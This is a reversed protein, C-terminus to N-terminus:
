FCGTGANETAFTFIKFVCCSVAEGFFHESNRSM